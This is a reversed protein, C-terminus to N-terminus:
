FFFKSPLCFTCAVVLLLFYYLLKAPFWHTTSGPNQSRGGNLTPPPRVLPIPGPGRSRVYTPAGPSLAGIKPRFPGKWGQSLRKWTLFERNKFFRSFAPTEDFITPSKFTACKSRRNLPIHGTEDFIRPIRSFRSKQDLSSMKPGVYGNALPGFIAIKPFDWFHRPNM